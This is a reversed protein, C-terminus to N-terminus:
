LYFRQAIKHFAAASSSFISHAIKYGIKYFAAASSPFYLSVMRV